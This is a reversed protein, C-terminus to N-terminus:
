PIRQVAAAQLIDEALSDVTYDNQWADRDHTYDGEGLDFQQMFRILGSLGLERQVAQFGLMRIQADTKQQAAIMM